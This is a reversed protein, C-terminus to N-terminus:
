DNYGGYMKTGTIEFYLQEFQSQADKGIESLNARVIKAFQEAVSEQEQESWEAPKCEVQKRALDRLFKGSETGTHGNFLCDGDMELCEAISILRDVTENKGYPYSWEAPKQEKELWALWEQCSKASPMSGMEGNAIRWLFGVLGKRIRDDESERLEPFIYGAFDGGYKQQFSKARELAEDYAKAKEEPTM